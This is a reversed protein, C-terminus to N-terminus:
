LCTRTEAAGAFLIHEVSLCMVHWAFSFAAEPLRWCDGRVRHGGRGETARGALKTGGQLVPSVMHFGARRHAIPEPPIRCALCCIVTACRRPPPEARGHSSLLDLAGSDRRGSRPTWPPRRRAQSLVSCRGRGGCWRRGCHRGSIVAVRSTLRPWGALQLQLWAVSATAMDVADQGHIYTVNAPRGVAVNRLNTNLAAM